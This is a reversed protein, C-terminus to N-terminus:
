KDSWVALLNGDPDAFHFRRGGPFSFIPAVIRGGEAEVQQLKRELEPHYIVVLPRGAPIFNDKREFGGKMKGDDFACYDPGYDTFEWQFVKEYFAKINKLDKAPFEIYDIHNRM